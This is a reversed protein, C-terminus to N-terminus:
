ILNRMIKYFTLKHVLTNENKLYNIKGFGKIFKNKYRHAPLAIRRNIFERIYSLKNLPFIYFNDCIVDPTELVSVINLIDYDINVENLPIKFSLDFRTIIIFEYNINNKISYNYCLDMSKLFHTNRSIIHHNINNIPRIYYDKPCYDTILDDNYIHKNTSFFIDIEYGLNKYYDIIFENYNDLSNKYNICLTRGSFHKYNEYFSIGFLLLAIKKM